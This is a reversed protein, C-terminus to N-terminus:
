GVSCKKDGKGAILIDRQIPFVSSTLCEFSLICLFVAGLFLCGAFFLPTQFEKDLRRAILFMIIGLAYWVHLIIMSTLNGFSLMTLESLIVYVIISIVALVTKVKKM